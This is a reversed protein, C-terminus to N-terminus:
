HVLRPKEREKRAHQIARCQQHFERASITEDVLDYRELLRAIASAVPYTFVLKQGRELRRLLREDVGIRAALEYRSIQERERYDLLPQLFPTAYVYSSDWTKM